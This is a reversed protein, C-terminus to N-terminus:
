NLQNFPLALIDASGKKNEILGCYQGTAFDIVCRGQANQAITLEKRSLLSDRSTGCTLKSVSM